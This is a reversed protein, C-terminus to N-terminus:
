PYMPRDDDGRVQDALRAALAQECGEQILRRRVTSRRTYDAGSKEARDYIEQARAGWQQEEM